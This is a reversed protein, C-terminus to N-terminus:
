VVGMAIKVFTFLLQTNALDDGIADAVGPYQVKVAVEAGNHLRAVHVQGSAAAAIPTPPFEACLEEPGRGFESGIAGAVLVPSMGAGEIEVRPRRSSSAM